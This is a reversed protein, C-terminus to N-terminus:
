AVRAPLGRLLLAKRMGRFPLIGWRWLMGFSRVQWGARRENGKCGRFLGKSDYLPVDEGDGPLSPVCVEKREDVLDPICSHREGRHDPDNVAVAEGQATETGERGM